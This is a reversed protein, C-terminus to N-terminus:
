GAAHRGQWFEPIVLVWGSADAGRDLLGEDLLGADVLLGAGLLATRM